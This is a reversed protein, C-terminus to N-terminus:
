LIRRKQILSNSGHCQTMQQKNIKILYLLLRSNELFGMILHMATETADKLNFPCGSFSTHCINDEKFHSIILFINNM